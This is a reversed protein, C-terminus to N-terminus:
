NVKYLNEIDEEITHVSGKTKYAIELYHEHVSVDLGCLIVHVPMDLKELLEIDRVPSYNDAILILEWNGKMYKKAALLSELDNEPADGSCGYQRAEYLQTLLTDINDVDAYHIGGTKGIRKLDNPMGDGDNFFIYKNNEDATLKLIHWQLLEMIYPSMSCTVDTVIIKNKWKNRLRYLVANVNFRNEVFFNSNSDLSKRIELTTSELMNKNKEVYTDINEDLKFLSSADRQRALRLRKDERREYEKSSIFRLNVDREYLGAESPITDIGFDHWHKVGYRYIDGIPVLIYAYGGKNTVAEYFSNSKESHVLFKENPVGNFNLDVYRFKILAKEKTPYFRKTTSGDFTLDLNFELNEVDPLEFDEYHPANKFNVLYFGGSPIKVEGYGNKNTKVKFKEGTQSNEIEVEEMVPKNLTNHISIKLLTGKKKEAYYYKLNIPQNEGEKIEIEDYNIYEGLDISYKSGSPLRINGSGNSNTTVQFEEGTNQNFFAVKVVQPNENKDVILLNVLVDESTFKNNISLLLNTFTLQFLLSIIILRKIKRM